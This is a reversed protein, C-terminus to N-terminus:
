FNGYSPTSRIKLCVWISNDSFLIGLLILPNEENEDNEGHFISKKPSDRIVM